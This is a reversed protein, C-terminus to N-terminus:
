AAPAHVDRALERPGPGMGDEGLGPLVGHAGDVHHDFALHAFGVADGLFGRIGHFFEGFEM